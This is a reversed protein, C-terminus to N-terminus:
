MKLDVAELDSRRVQNLCRILNEMRILEGILMTMPPSCIANSLPHARFETCVLTYEESAVCNVRM